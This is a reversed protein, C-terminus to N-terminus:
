EGKTPEFNQEEEKEKPASFAAVLPYAEHVALKFKPYESNWTTFVLYRAQLMSEVNYFKDKGVNMLLALTNADKKGLMVLSAAAALRSSFNTASAAYAANYAEPTKSDLIQKIKADVMANLKASPTKSASASWSLAFHVIALHVSPNQATELEIVRTLSRLALLFQNTRLYFAIALIHAEPDDWASVMLNQVFPAAKKLPIKTSKLQEGDPDRDNKGNWTKVAASAAEIPKKKGPLNKQKTAGESSPSVITDDLAYYSNYAFSSPCFSPASPAAGSKAQQAKLQDDLKLYCKILGKAAHIYHEQGHLRDEMRMIRVFTALSFSRVAYHFFDYQDESIEYFHEITNSFNKLAKALNDLKYNSNGAEAEYWMVQMTFINSYHSLDLKTFIGLNAAAKTPNGAKLWYKVSRTNLNRDALDMTRAKEVCEAAAVDDGAKSYIKAKVLYVDMVTPTHEIAKNVVKLATEYEGLQCEHLASFYYVWLLTTPDETKESDPFKLEKELRAIASQTWKAISAVHAPNKYLSKVSNFLSPVGKVFMPIAYKSFAKEFEAGELWYMLPLQQTVLSKPYLKQLETYTQTLDTRLQPTILTSLDTKVQVAKQGTSELGRTFVSDISIPLGHSILLGYHYTVNDPNEHILATFDTKAGALDGTRIKLEAVLEKAHLKDMIRPQSNVLDVLAESWQHSDRLLFNKYLLLESHQNQVEWKNTPMEADSLSSEQVLSVLHAAFEHEGILHSALAYGVWNVRLDPRAKWLAKRSKFHGEFDRLHLQLNALDRLIRDNKPDHYMATQFYKHAQYFARDNRYIVGLVHYCNSSAVDLRLGKRALNYGLEKNGSQHEALGKLSLTEGHTPFKKLIGDATKIAKDYKKSDIHGCLTVFQHKENPPLVVKLSAM